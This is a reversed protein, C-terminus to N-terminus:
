KKAKGKKAEDLWDKLNRALVEVSRQSLIHDAPQAPVKLGSMAKRARTWLQKKKAETEALYLDSVIEQLRALLIEDHHDYYREIIKKQYRTYEAM